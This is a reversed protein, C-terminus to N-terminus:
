TPYVTRCAERGAYALVPFVVVLAPLFVLLTAFIAASLLLAWAMMVPFNAFVGRVSAGIAGALDTRRYYLLPVAFASIAFLIFALVAGMASSFMLFSVLSWDSFLSQFFQTLFFIPTTGFYLAYVTAADTVWVLFLFACVLSLVWLSPPNTRFTGAVHAIRPKEGAEVRDALGFFGCLFVPAILMFAGAFPITMPTFGLLVVAPFIAAAGACFLAAYALSVTRSRLFLSWGARLWKGVDDFGAKHPMLQSM